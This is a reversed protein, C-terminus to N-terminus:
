SADIRLGPQKPASVSPTATNTNHESFATVPRGHDNPGGSSRESFLSPTASSPPRRTAMSAGAAIGIVNRPMPTATNTPSRYSRHHVRM